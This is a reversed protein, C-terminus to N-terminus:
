LALVARTVPGSFRDFGTMAAGDVTRGGGTHHVVMGQVNELKGYTREALVHDGFSTLAVRRKQV